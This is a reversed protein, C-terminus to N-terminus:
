IRWLKNPVVFGFISIKFDSLEPKIRRLISKDKGAYRLSNICCVASASIAREIEAENSPQKVFYTDCNEGDIPALLDPAEDEPLHCFLCSGVWEGNRDQYGTTYFDGDVNKPFRQTM